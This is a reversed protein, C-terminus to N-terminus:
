TEDGGYILELTEELATLRGMKVTITGDRHDTIDGAVLFASNDYRIPAPTVMEGTNPDEVPQCPVLIAWAAGNQFLSAATEYDTELTISKSERYDWDGDRLKGTIQAGFRRQGIEIETM